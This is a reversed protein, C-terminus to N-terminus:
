CLSSICYHWRKDAVSNHEGIEAKGIMEPPIAVIGADMSTELQGQVSM